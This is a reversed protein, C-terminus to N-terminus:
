QHAEHVQGDVFVFHRGPGERGEMYALHAEYGILALAVANIAAHHKPDTSGLLGAFTVAERGPQSWDVASYDVPCDPASTQAMVRRHAEAATLREIM